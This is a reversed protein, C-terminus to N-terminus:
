ILSSILLTDFFLTTWHCHCSHCLICHNMACCKTVEVSHESLVAVHAFVPAKFAGVIKMSINRVRNVSQIMLIRQEYSLYNCLPCLFVYSKTHNVCLYTRFSFCDCQSTYKIMEAGNLMLALSRYLQVGAGATINHM